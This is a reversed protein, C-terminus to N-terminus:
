VTIFIDFYTLFAKVLIEISNHVFSILTYLDIVFDSYIFEGNERMMYLLAYLLFASLKAKWSKM